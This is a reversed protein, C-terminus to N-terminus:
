RREGEPQAEVLATARLTTLARSLYSRVTHPSCSMADAIEADSMGAYYRLALAAKQRRPLRSIQRRLADREVLQVAHDPAPEAMPVEAVPTERSWKRRWSLYENVLMRRVYAEPVDLAGIRSWHGQVKIMVDHVLDEALAADGCVARATRLLERLRADVFEDFTM